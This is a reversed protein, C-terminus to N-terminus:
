GKRSFSAVFLFSRPLSTELCPCPFIESGPTASPLFSPSLPPNSNVPERMFRLSTISELIKDLPPIFSPGSSKPHSPRSPHSGAYASVANSKKKKKKRPTPNRTAQHPRTSPSPVPSPALPSLSEVPPNRPTHERLPERSRAQARRRWLSPTSALFPPRSAKVENARHGYKLRTFVCAKSRIAWWSAAHDVSIM